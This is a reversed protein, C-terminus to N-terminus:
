HPVVAAPAPGDGTRLSSWGWCEAKGNDRLGCSHYSHASVSYFRGDPPNLVGSASDFPNQDNGWCLIAGDERLGCAFSSEVSASVATFKGNPPNLVGTVIGAYAQNSGWCAITADTRLGCSHFRGASVATFRGSPVNLQGRSNDGWCRVVGNDRIGCMHWLGTSVASFQGGLTRSLWWADNPGWCVVTGNDRIACNQNAGASIAKFQGQPADLQGFQNDGWCTITGNGRIGCHHYFGASLASFQGDPADLLGTYIGSSSENSGWCQVTRDGRLGCTHSGGAAVVTFLTGPAGTQEIECQEGEPWGLTQRSRCGIGHINLSRGGSCSSSTGMISCDIPHGLRFVAHGIEHAVTLLYHKYAQHKCVNTDPYDRIRPPTDENKCTSFFANYAEITPVISITGSAYGSAANEEIESGPVAGVLILTYPHDDFESIANVCPNENGNNANQWWDGIRQIDWDIDPSVIGGSVFNTKVLGSSQVSFFTAVQQNLINLEHNLDADSYNQSRSACYYTHVNVEATFPHKIAGWCIVSHEADLSCSYSQGSSISIFKGDPADLQGVITGQGDDNQGWCAVTRDVRLGCAHTGGASVAIFKRPPASWEGYFNSGWCTAAQDTRIGCSFTGGASVSTFLGQPPSSEGWIDNGWCAITQDIRVGCSHATGASISTFQGSPAISQNVIEDQWNQNSGWCAATQDSRVGCSHSYGASISTFQGDPAVSQGVVNGSHDTNAGWCTITQDTRLACTHERGASVATYQGQPVETQGSSSNGWCDITHDDNITCFHSAGATISPDPLGPHPETPPIQSTGACGGTVAHTDIKFLCRYTNLLAEQNAVLEDRVTIDQQTPTGLFPMPASSQQSPRGNTCGGTVAHTDINFLCRYTNLLSEQNAILTDRVEIDMQTAPQEPTPQQAAATPTPAISGLAVVAAGVAFVACARPPWRM